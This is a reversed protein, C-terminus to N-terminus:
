DRSPLQRAAARLGYEIDRLAAPCHQQAAEYLAMADKQTCEVVVCMSFPREDAWRELERYFRLVTYAPDQPSLEHLLRDYDSRALGISVKM